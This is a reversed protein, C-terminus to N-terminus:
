ITSRVGLVVIGDVSDPPVLVPPFRDELPRVAWNGVPLVLCAALAGVGVVLLGRGVRWRRLLLGLVACEVMLATPLCAATLLKDIIFTM